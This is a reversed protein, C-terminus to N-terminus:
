VHAEVLNVFSLFPHRRDPLEILPKLPRDGTTKSGRAWSRLTASSLRLYRAGEDLSYGPLSRLDQTREVPDPRRGPDLKEKQSIMASLIPLHDKPLSVSRINDASLM